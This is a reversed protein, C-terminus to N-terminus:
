AIQSPLGEGRRRRRKAPPYRGASPWCSSGPSKPPREDKKALSEKGRGRHKRGKRLNPARRRAKGGERGALRTLLSLSVSSAFFL